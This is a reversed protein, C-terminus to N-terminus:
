ERTTSLNRWLHTLQRPRIYRELLQTLTMEETGARAGAEVRGGPNDETAGELDHNLCQLTAIQSLYTHCNQHSLEFFYHEKQTSQFHLSIATEAIASCMYISKFTERYYDHNHSKVTTTTMTPTRTLTM